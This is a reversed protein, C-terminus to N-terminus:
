VSEVSCHLTCEGSSLLIDLVHLGYLGSGTSRTKTDALPVADTCSIGNSSPPIVKCILPGTVKAVFSSPIAIRVQFTVKLFKADSETIM